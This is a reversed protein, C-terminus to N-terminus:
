KRRVTEQAVKIVEVLVRRNLVSSLTVYIIVGIVIQLILLVIYSLDLKNVMLVCKLMVIAIIIPPLIDSIQERISYHLIRQNPFTNYILSFIGMLSLVIIVHYISYHASIILLILSLTRKIVELKLFVDSRGIANFAQMNTTSLINIGFPICFLQMMLISPAWKETLVLLVFNKSIGAIGAMIPAVVFATLAMMKRTYKKLQKLDGQITALAPFMVSSVTENITTTMTNPLSQGRNYFGLTETSFFKGIVLSYLQQHLTGIMWAVTLKWSYSFLKKLRNFSFVAKPKWRVFFLLSILVTFKMLIQSIILSWIGFGALAFGIGSVGQVFVSLVNTIFSKDFMMNKRLATLQMSSLAELLLIISMARVYLSLSEVNYYHEIFPAGFILVLICILAIAIQVYFVTSYDADESDTRQIIANGLGNNILTNSFAIFVNVIALIGYDSPSLVRALLLQVLFQILQIGGRELLRWVMGKAIRNTLTEQGKM